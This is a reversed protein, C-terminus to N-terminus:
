SRVVVRVTTFDGAASRIPYATELRAIAPNGATEMSLRIADAIPVSFAGGRNERHELRWAQIASRSCEPIEADQEVIEEIFATLRSAIIPM